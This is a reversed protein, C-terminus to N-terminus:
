FFMFVFMLVIGLYVTLSFINDIDKKSLDKKQIVAAGFGMDTFMQFFNVFVTLIAVIGYEEANLLRALIVNALIGFILNSYKGIAIISAAGIISQNQKKM